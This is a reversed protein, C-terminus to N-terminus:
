GRIVWILCPKEDRGDMVFVPGGSARGDSAAQGKDAKNAGAPYMPRSM